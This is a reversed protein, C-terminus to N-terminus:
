KCAAKWSEVKGVYNYWDEAENLHRCPNEIKVGFRHDLAKSVKQFHPLYQDWKKLASSICMGQWYFIAEGNNDFKKLLIVHCM